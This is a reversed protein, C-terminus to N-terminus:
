KSPFDYLSLKVRFPFGDESPRARQSDPRASLRHKIHTDWGTEGRCTGQALESFVSAIVHNEAGERAATTGGGPFRLGVKEAWRGPSWGEGQNRM